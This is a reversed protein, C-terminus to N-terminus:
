GTGRKQDVAVVIRELRVALSFEVHVGNQFVSSAGHLIDFGGSIMQNQPRVVLGIGDLDEGHFFALGSSVVQDAADTVDGDFGLGQLGFGLCGM